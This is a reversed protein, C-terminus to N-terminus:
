HSDLLSNLLARKSLPKEIVSDVHPDTSLENGTSERAAVVLKAVPINPNGKLLTSLTETSGKVLDEDILVASYNRNRIADVAQTAASVGDVVGGLAEILQRVSERAGLDNDVLLVSQGAFPQSSEFNQEGVEPAKEARRGAFSIAVATGRGEESLIDWVGGELVVLKKTLLLGIGSGGNESNTTISPVTTDDAELITRLVNEPIGDGDDRVTIIVHDESSSLNVHIWVNGDQQAFKVGNHLLNFLIQKLHKPDTFVEFDDELAFMNISVGRRGATPALLGVVSQAANQVSVFEKNSPYSGCVGRSVDIFDGMIALVYEGYDRIYRLTDRHSDDLQDDLLLELTEAACVVATIPNKLEHAVETTIRGQHQLRASLEDARRRHLEAAKRLTFHDLLAMFVASVALVVGLFSM